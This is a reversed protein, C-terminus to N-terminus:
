QLNNDKLWQKYEAESVKNSKILPRIFEVAENFGHCVAGHVSGGIQEVLSLFHKQEKSAYAKGDKPDKKMELFILHTRGTTSRKAPIFLILDSIGARVGARKNDSLASWSSTYTSLPVAYVELGQEQCYINFKAQEHLEKKNYAM